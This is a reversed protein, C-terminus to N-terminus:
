ITESNNRLYNTYFTFKQNGIHILDSENFIEFFYNIVNILYLNWIISATVYKANLM